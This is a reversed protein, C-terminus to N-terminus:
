YEEQLPACHTVTLPEPDIGSGRVVKPVIVDGLDLLV